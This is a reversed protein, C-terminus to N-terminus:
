FAKGADEPLKPGAIPATLVRWWQNAERPKIILRLLAGHRNLWWCLAQAAPGNHIRFYLEKGHNYMAVSWWRNGTSSAGLAHTFEAQPVYLIKGHKKLRHCLETDECYLFFQEDFKEIPRFMICAGMVQAVQTPQDTKAIIRASQWYPSFVPSNPFLKELLFQECAVAWLTLPNCASQQLTGDSNLLKGGTAIVHPDQFPEALTQIASPHPLCDSNLLFALDGTMAEIGQNNAAGFGRNTANKILKVEPHNSLLYEPTGDKSANDVIIIEHIPETKLAALCSKIHDLTNYSVIIVSIKSKDDTQEVNIIIASPHVKLRFQFNM